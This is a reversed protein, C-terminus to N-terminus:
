LRQDGASLRLPLVYNKLSYLAPQFPRVKPTGTAVPLGVELVVRALHHKALGRGRQRFVLDLLLAAQCVADRLPRPRPTV